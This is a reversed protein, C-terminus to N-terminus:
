CSSLDDQGALIEENEALNVWQLAQHVLPMMKQPDIEADALRALDSARRRYIRSQVTMKVGAMTRRQLANNLIERFIDRLASQGISPLAEM